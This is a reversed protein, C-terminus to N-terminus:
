FIVQSRIRLLYILTMFSVVQRTKIIYRRDHWLKQLAFFIVNPSKYRISLQTGRIILQTFFFLLPFNILVFKLRNFLLLSGLEVDFVFRGKPSIKHFIELDSRFKIKFGSNIARASFDMEEHGYPYFNNYLGIKDVLTKKFAHGAGIFWGTEMSKKLQKTKNLFPFEHRLRKRSHFNKIHFALIGVNEDEEQFAELINNFLNKNEISIDDDLEIIIDSKAKKLLYNRGGSVGLNVKTFYWKCDPFTDQLKKYEMLTKKNSGNDLIYVPPNNLCGHISNLTSYLDNPRNMTIISIAMNNDQNM